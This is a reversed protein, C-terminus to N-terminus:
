GLILAGWPNDIAYMWTGDAQRRIVEASEQEM